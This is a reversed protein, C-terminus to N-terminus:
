LQNTKCLLRNIQNETKNTQNEERIRSPKGRVRVLALKCYISSVLLINKGRRTKHKRMNKKNEGQAPQTEKESKLKILSCSHSTPLDPLWPHSFSLLFLTYNHTIPNSSQVRNGEGCGRGQGAGTAVAKVATMAGLKLSRSLEGARPVWDDSKM